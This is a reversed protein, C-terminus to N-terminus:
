FNEKQNRKKKMVIVPSFFILCLITWNTATNTYLLTWFSNLVLTFYSQHCFHTICERSIRSGRTALEGAGADYVCSKPKTKNFKM